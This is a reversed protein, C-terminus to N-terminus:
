RDTNRLLLNYSNVYLVCTSPKRFAVNSVNSVVSWTKSFATHVRPGMLLERTPGLPGNRDWVLTKSTKGTIEKRTTQLIYNTKAMQHRGHTWHTIEMTSQIATPLHHNTRTTIRWFASNRKKDLITYGATQRMFRMESAATRKWGQKKITWAESGYVLTPKIESM